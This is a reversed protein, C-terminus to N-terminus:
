AAGGENEIQQAPVDLEGVPDPVIIAAEIKEPDREDTVHFTILTTDELALIVRKTGPKTVLVRPGAVIERSEHTILEVCGNAVVLFHETAHLKGVILAGAPITLERAYAGAAFHHALEPGPTPEDPPPLAKMARELELIQEFTPPALGPEFPQIEQNM